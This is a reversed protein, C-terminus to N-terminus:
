AFSFIRVLTISFKAIINCITSKGLKSSTGLGEQALEQVTELVELQGGLGGLDEPTGQPLAPGVGGDDKRSPDPGAARDPVSKRFPAFAGVGVSWM